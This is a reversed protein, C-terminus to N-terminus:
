PALERYVFVSVAAGAIAVITSAIGGCVAVVFRGVAELGLARAVVDLAAGAVSTMMLVGVVGFLAVIVFLFLQAQVPATLAWSRQLLALPRAPEAVTVASLLFLLRAYLYFSPLVLLMFGLAVPASALLLAVMFGPWLPLAVAFGTRPTISTRLMLATIALQAFNGLLAPLLFAWLLQQGSVDLPNPPLPPVFLQVAVSPLLTFPAAVFFLRSLDGLVLATM